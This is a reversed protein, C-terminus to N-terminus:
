SDLAGARALLLTHSATPKAFHCLRVAYKNHKLLSMVYGIQIGTMNELYELSWLPGIVPNTRRASATKKEESFICLRDAYWRKKKSFIAGGIQM